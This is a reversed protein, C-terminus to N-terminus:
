LQAFRPTFCDMLQGTERDLHLRIGLLDHAFDFPGAKLFEDLRLPCGNCHVAEVDLMVDTIKFPDRERALTLESFARHAIRHIVNAERPTADFKVKGTTNM